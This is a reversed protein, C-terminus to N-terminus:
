KRCYWNWSLKWYLGPAVTHDFFNIPTDTHNILIGPGIEIKFSRSTNLNKFKEWFWGGGIFTHPYASFTYGAQFAIGSKRIKFRYPFYENKLYWNGGGSLTVGHYIDTFYNTIEVVPKYFFGVETTIQPIVSIRLSGGVLGGGGVSVGYSTAGGFDEINVKDPKPITDFSKGQTSTEYTWGLVEKGPLSFIMLTITLRLLMILSSEM